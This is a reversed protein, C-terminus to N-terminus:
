LLKKSVGKYIWFGCNIELLIRGEELEYPCSRSSTKEKGLRLSKNKQFM